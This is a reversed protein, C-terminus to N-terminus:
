VDAYRSERGLYGLYRLTLCSECTDVFPSIPKNCFPYLFSILMSRLPPNYTISYTIRGM